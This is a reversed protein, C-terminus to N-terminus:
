VCIEGGFTSAGCGSCKERCNQTTKGHRANESERILFQKSVGVSIHEWPLIEDYERKRTVYFDANLNCKEFAGQWAKFNFFEHWGDFKCGNKHAEILVKSLRRDGRAFVAEMFSVPADHWNYKVARHKITTQLLRQKRELNEITDMPEWQFPTHPKPVFCSTSVTISLGRARKEKPVAFYQEAVLSSLKSIGLIDEDTETPLGMMFYLKVSSYGGSFALSTSSIIDEETINKNIVDRLRQTGAEPAFTLGSKRVKNMLELSFNDIRLSPLSLNINLPKTLTLLQNCLAQLETYDSSSLSTMSIEEYGTNKILEEALEILKQASRERVPRYIVGAQCFRCGRTCGRFLELMIRDHVIDINPVIYKTPYFADDLNNIIRKTITKPANEFNPTISKITGIENYEVDYFQPVYVGEITTISKLFEIKPTGSKKWIAFADMIECIVEEGEGMVFFDIIEALPEPNYACSGGAFIFPFEESRQSSLFPINSLELMNLINSYCLEYQLTFAVLDFTSIDKKTELSFLPINNDRMQQEMDVWPAFVRQCYTDARENLVGYLIKTGLHSMGVEYTDPFAFAINILVDEPNKEASAWEGGTYRAPKEVKNLLFTIDKLIFM